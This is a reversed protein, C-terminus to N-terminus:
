RTQWPGLIGQIIRLTPTPVYFHFLLLCLVLSVNELIDVINVTESM